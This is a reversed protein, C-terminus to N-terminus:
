RSPSRTTTCGPFRPLAFLLASVLIPLAAWVSGDLGARQGAWLLGPALAGLVLAELFPISGRMRGTM